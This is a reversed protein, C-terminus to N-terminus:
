KSLMSALSTLCKELDGIEETEPREKRFLLSFFGEVSFGRLKGTKVYEEWTVDDKVFLTMIMTGDNFEKGFVSPTKIGRDKDVMMIEFLYVGQTPQMPDHMINFQNHFGGMGMKKMVKEITSKRFVGNYEGSEDNRYIPIDPIMAPGMVLRREESATKFEFM